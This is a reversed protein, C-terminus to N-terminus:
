LLVLPCTVPQESAESLQLVRVRVCAPLCFTTRPPDSVWACRRVYPRAPRVDKLLLNFSSELRHKFLDFVSIVASCTLARPSFHLVHDLVAFQYKQCRM